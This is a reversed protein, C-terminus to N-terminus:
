LSFNIILKMTNIYTSSIVKMSYWAYPIQFEDGLMIYTDKYLSCAIKISSALHIVVLSVIRIIWNWQGSSKNKNTKKKKTETEPSLFEIFCFRNRTHCDFHTFNTQCNHFQWWQFATFELSLPNYQPYIDNM